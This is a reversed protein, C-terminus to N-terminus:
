PHEAPTVGPTWQTQPRAQPEGDVSVDVREDFFALRGAIAEMGPIPDEYSWVLDDHTTGDDLRLSWYSAGGKFPCSTAKDTSQLLETRVDARPLYYRPPLGTEQLTVVDTSSGDVTIELRHGDERLDINHGNPDM